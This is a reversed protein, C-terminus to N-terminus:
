QKRKLVFKKDFQKKLNFVLFVLFCAFLFKKIPLVFIPFDKEYFSNQDSVEGFGRYVRAKITYFGSLDKSFFSFNKAMISDPLTYWSKIKKSLIEEGFYNTVSIDGFHELFVDGKNELLVQLNIKEDENFFFKNKVIGFNVLYSDRNAEGPINVFMLYGSRVHLSVVDKEEGEGNGTTSVIIAGYVGGPQINLPVSIEFPIRIKSGSPIRVKTKEFKIFNKLSYIGGKGEEILMISQEVNKTGKIEEVSLNFDREEGTRNIITLSTKAKQGPELEFFKRDTSVVFDNKSINLANDVAFSFNPLM